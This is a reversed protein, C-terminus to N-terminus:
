QLGLGAGNVVLRAVGSVVRGGDARSAGTRGLRPVVLSFGKRQADKMVQAVASEPFAFLGGRAGIDEALDSLGESGVDQGGLARTVGFGAPAAWSLLWVRSSKTDAAEIAERVDTLDDSEFGCASDDLAYRGDSAGAVVAFRDRGIALERLGSGHIVFDRAADELDDFAAQIVPRRDAGGAIFLSPIRLAALGALSAKAMEEDDGLGGLMIVLQPKAATISALEHRTLAAGVPGAFAAIRVSDQKSKVRLVRDELVLDLEGAHWARSEPADLQACRQFELSDVEGALKSCRCGTVTLLVAFSLSCLIRPTAYM